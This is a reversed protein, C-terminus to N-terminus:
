ASRIWTQAALNLVRWYVRKQQMPENAPLLSCCRDAISQLIEVSQESLENWHLDGLLSWLVTMAPGAPTDAALSRMAIEKQQLPMTSVLETAVSTVFEPDELLNLM